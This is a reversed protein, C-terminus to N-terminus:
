TDNQSNVLRQLAQKLPLYECLESGSLITERASNSLIPAATSKKQPTTNDMVVSIKISALQYIGAEIRLKDRLEPLAYRLQSAWVPNSTVLVLCSNKFSGVHCQERLEEPLYNHIKEDLEELKIARECIDILQTNLCRSVHRM